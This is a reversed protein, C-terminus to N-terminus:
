GIECNDGVFGEACKNSDFSNVKSEFILFLFCRFMIKFWTKKNVNM